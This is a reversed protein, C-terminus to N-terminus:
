CPFTSIHYKYEYWTYVIGPVEIRVTLVQVYAYCMTPLLLLLATM